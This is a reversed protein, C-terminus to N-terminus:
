RVLNVRVRHFIIENYFWGVRHIFGDIKRNKREFSQKEPFIFEIV